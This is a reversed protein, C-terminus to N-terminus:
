RWTRSEVVKVTTFLFFAIVSLYLVVPRSDVIGRSFDIMHKVSSVYNGGSQILPQEVFYPTFGALFSLFLLAFTVIAAAIQNRTLSSALLGAAICAASILLLGAYATAATGLDISEGAASFGRMIAIYSLTPLWLILYFLLAGFYKALVIASDRVPATMLTEITGSRKEEAFLRMTIMPVVMMLTIWFFISEGILLQMVSIDSTGEQLVSTVLFWFYSGMVMLFFFMMVYAIPSLFYASLERKLLAFFVKM